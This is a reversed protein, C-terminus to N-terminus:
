KVIVKEKMKDVIKDKIAAFQLDSFESLDYNFLTKKKKFNVHKGKFEVINIKACKWEYTVGSVAFLLTNKKIIFFFNDFILVSYIIVFFGLIILTLEKDQYSEFLGFVILLLGVIFPEIRRRIWKQTRGIKLYSDNKIRHKTIILDILSLILILACLSFAIIRGNNQESLLILATLVAFLSGDSRIIRIMIIKKNGNKLSTIDTLTM